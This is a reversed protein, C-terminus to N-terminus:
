PQKILKAPDFKTEKKWLALTIAAIQRALTLKALNPKIKNHLMAAYHQYLPCDKRAQGIVTTAAGKFISKLEHNHNRNLGRTQQVLDKRWKGDDGQVWDSSSRMVVGLGSYEWLQRRTRFRHPSVVIALVNAVRIPGLGPVTSLLKYIPSKRAEAIMTKESERRLPEVVDYQRLLSDAATQTRAPLQVLWEERKKSNYLSDDTAIGRSRYLSLIRNQVRVSDRVQMRHVKSLERLRGFRGLQKYVRVEISNTRLKDALELADRQDDKSGRRERKVTVVTEDVHPSLTEYLWASQTGEEFCLHRPRPIAKLLEVLLNANTEVVHCGLKKGSPGLIVMTSSTKHVDLGIYRSM